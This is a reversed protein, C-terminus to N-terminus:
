NWYGCAESYGSYESRGNLAEPFTDFYWGWFDETDGLKAWHRRVKAWHECSVASCGASECFRERETM